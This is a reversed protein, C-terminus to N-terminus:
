LGRFNQRTYERMWSENLISVEFNEKKSIEVVAICGPNLKSPKRFNVENLIFSRTTGPVSLEGGEEHYHGCFHLKPQYTKIFELIDLSGANEYFSDFPVDHTLLIDIEDGDACLRRFDSKTYHKSAPGAGWHNQFAVGGLSAVNIQIKGLSFSCVSGNPLYFIRGYADVCQPTGDMESLGNLYEFDEHNGRIFYLRADIRRNPTASEGLIEDAEKSGEFYDVFSLEDPDKQYFRMTAKDVRFPPPFAGFDGVQFIASLQKRNEEEWRKLLRYALTIHGHLDGLIAVYEKKM